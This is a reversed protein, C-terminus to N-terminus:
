AEFRGLLYQCVHIETIQINEEILIFKESVAELIRLIMFLAPSSILPLRSGRPGEFKQM